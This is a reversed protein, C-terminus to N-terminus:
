MMRENLLKAKSYLPLSLSETASREEQEDATYRSVTICDEMGGPLDYWVMELLPVVVVAVVHTMNGCTRSGLVMIKSTAERQMRRVDDAVLAREIGDAAVGGLGLGL